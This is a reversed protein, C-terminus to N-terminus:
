CQCLYHSPATLCCAMVQVLTSRSGQRWIVDSPRLSNLAGKKYPVCSRKYYKRFYRVGQCPEYCQGPSCASARARQTVVGEAFIANVWQGRLSTSTSSKLDMKRISTKRCILRVHTGCFGLSLLGLSATLCWAMVQDLRSGSSHRWIANRPWLSNIPVNKM